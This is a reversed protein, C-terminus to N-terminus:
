ALEKKTYKRDSGPMFDYIKGVIIHYINMM